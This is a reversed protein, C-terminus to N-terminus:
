VRVACCLNKLATVADLVIEFDINAKEIFGADWHEEEAEISDVYYSIEIRTLGHNIAEKLVRGPTFTPYFIANTNMGLTSRTTRSQFLALLKNYVKIRM